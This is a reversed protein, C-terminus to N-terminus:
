AMRRNGVRKWDKDLVKARQIILERRRNAMIIEEATPPEHRTHRLWSQWQVPLSDSNYEGLPKKEKMEVTRKKRGNIFRNSEYYENGYLDSGVLVRQRWPLRAQKWMILFRSVYSNASSM